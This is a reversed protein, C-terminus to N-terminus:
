ASNWLSRLECVRTQTTDAAIEFVGQAAEQIQPSLIESIQEMGDSYASHFFAPVYTVSFVPLKCQELTEAYFMESGTYYQEPCFLLVGDCGQKKQASLLEAWANESLEPTHIIRLSVACDEAGDYIGEQFACFGSVANESLIVAIQKKRTQFFQQGLFLLLVLLIGGAFVWLVKNKPKM